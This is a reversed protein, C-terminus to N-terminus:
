RRRRDLKLLALDNHYEDSMPHVVASAVKIVEGNDFLVAKLGARAFIFFHSM